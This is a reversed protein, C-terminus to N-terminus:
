PDSVIRCSGQALRRWTVPIAKVGDKNSFYTPFGVGSELPEGLAGALRKYLVKALGRHAVEGTTWRYERSNVDLLGISIGRDCSERFRVAALHLTVAYTEASWEVMRLKKGKTEERKM